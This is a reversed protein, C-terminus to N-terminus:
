ETALVTVITGDETRAVRRSLAIGETVTADHLADAQTRDTAPIYLWGWDTWIEIGHEM